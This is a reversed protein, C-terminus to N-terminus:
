AVIHRLNAPRVRAQRRWWNPMAGCCLPLLVGDGNRRAVMRFRRMGMPSGDDTPWPASDDPAHEFVIRGTFGKPTPAAGVGAILGLVLAILTLSWCKRFAKM